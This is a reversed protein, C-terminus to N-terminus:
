QICVYCTGTQLRQHACAAPLVTYFNCARYLTRYHATDACLFDKLFVNSTDCVLVFRTCPKCYRDGELCRCQVVSHSCHEEQEQGHEEEFESNQANAARGRTHAAAATSSSM